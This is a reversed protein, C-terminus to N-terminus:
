PEESSGNERERKEPNEGERPGQGGPGIAFSILILSGLFLIFALPLLYFTFRLPIAIFFGLVGVIALFCGGIGKM